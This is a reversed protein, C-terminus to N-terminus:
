LKCLLKCLFFPIHQRFLDMSEVCGCHFLATIPHISLMFDQIHCHSSSLVCTQIITQMQSNAGLHNDSSNTDSCNMQSTHSSMFWSHLKELSLWSFKKLGPSAKTPPIRNSIYWAGYIGSKRSGRCRRRSAYIYTGRQLQTSTATTTLNIIGTEILQYHNLLQKMLPSVVVSSKWM